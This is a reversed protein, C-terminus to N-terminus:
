YALRTGTDLASSDLIWYGQTDTASLAWTTRWQQGPGIEHSIRQIHSPQDIMPGGGPPRARVTIRDELEVGLVLPWLNPDDSPSLQLETLESVPEKYHRLIWNAADVAELDNEVILRKDYRRRGYKLRSAEDTVIVQAGGEHTIIIHNRIRDETYDPVIDSYPLETGSDGFTAKSTIYPAKLIAHRDRFRVIGDAKVYAAGHESEAISQLESLPTGPQPLSQLTSIGPDVQRLAAPWNIADLIRTVRAGSADGRWATRANYHAAIRAASLVSPFVAVATMTGAPDGAVNPDSGIIPAHVPLGASPTQPDNFSTGNRLVGDIYINVDAAIGGAGVTVVVFHFADDMVTISSLRIVFGAGDQYTYKIVGGDGTSLGISFGSGQFQSYFNRDFGSAPTKIGFAISFGFAQAGAAIPLSVHDDLSDFLVAGDIGNTIPDPQSMTPTGAYVGHHQNGSSDLALAISDNEHLRWYARPTDKLIEADYPNVLDEMNLLKLADTFGVTTYRTQGRWRSPYNNAHGRYLDYTVANYTARVRGQKMPRVNPYYPSETNTPDYKRASDDLVLSMTGAEFRDLERQRGRIITIRDADDAIDTWVPSADYPGGALALEVALTPFAM